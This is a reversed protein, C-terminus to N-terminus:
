AAPVLVAPVGKDCGDHLLVQWGLDVGFASRLQLENCWGVSGDDTM